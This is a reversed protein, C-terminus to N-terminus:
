YPLAIGLILFRMRFRDTQVRRRTASALTVQRVGKGKGLVLEHKVIPVVGTRDTAVLFAQEPGESIIMPNADGRGMATASNGIVHNRQAVAIPTAVIGLMVMIRL